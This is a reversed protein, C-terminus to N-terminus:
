IKLLKQYFNGIGKGSSIQLRRRIRYRQLLCANNPFEKTEVCVAIAYVMCNKQNKVNAGDREEAKRHETSGAEAYEEHEVSDRQLFGGNGAYETKM